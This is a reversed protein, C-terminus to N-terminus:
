TESLSLQQIYKQLAPLDIELFEGQRMLQRIEQINAWHICDSDDGKQLLEGSAECIFHLGFSDVPGNMTQYACFPTVCQVEFTQGKVVSEKNKHILTICLGTEEKVERCLADTISEFENIRGGPLEYCEEGPKMRKQILIMPENEQKVIIARANVHIM